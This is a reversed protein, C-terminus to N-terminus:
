RTPVAEGEAGRGPGQVRGRVPRQRPWDASVAVDGAADLASRPGASRGKAARSGATPTAPRLSVGGGISRRCAARAAVEATIGCFDPLGPVATGFTDV